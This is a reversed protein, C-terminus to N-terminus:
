SLSLIKTSIIIDEIERNLWFFEQLILLLNLIWISLLDLIFQTLANQESTFSVAIRQYFMITDHYYIFM